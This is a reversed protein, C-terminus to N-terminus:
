AFYPNSGMGGVMRGNLTVSFLLGNGEVAQCVMHHAYVELLCDADFIILLLATVRIRSSSSSAYDPPSYVLAAVMAGPLVVYKALLALKKVLPEGRMLAM